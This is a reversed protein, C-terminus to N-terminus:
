ITVEMLTQWHFYGQLYLSKFFSVRPLDRSIYRENGEVREKSHSIVHKDPMFSVIQKLFSLNLGERHRQLNVGNM